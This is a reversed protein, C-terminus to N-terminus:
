DNMAAQYAALADVLDALSPYIRGGTDLVVTEVQLNIAVDEEGAQRLDTRLAFCRKGLAAAYGLEAVTGSDLEQGDLVAVIADSEGIAALNRRGIEL